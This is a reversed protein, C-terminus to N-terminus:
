SGWEFLSPCRGKVKEYEELVTKSYEAEKGAWPGIVRL